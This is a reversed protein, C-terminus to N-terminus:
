PPFIVVQQRETFPKDPISDEKLLPGLNLDNQVMPNQVITTQLSYHGLNDIQHNDDFTLIPMPAEEAQGDYSGSLMQQQEFQTKNM